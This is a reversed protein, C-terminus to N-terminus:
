PYLPSSPISLPSMLRPLDCLGSNEAGLLGVFIAAATLDASTGPNMRNCSDRLTVDLAAIEARGAATRVGGSALVATARRSVDRAADVGLKRAILTDPQHALLTLYTEVIADDWLLEDQRARVLTPVAIDFTTAFGTAYERAIADREAALTMVERLTATPEENVDQADVHGLGGPRACRIAAYVDCADAVTTGALVSAVSARFTDAVGGLAARALPVLLLIIGLNTNSPAWRATAETAELITSGVAREGARMMAPGIAAASALFHEYRADHFHRTPSVNGPKAASVELLCALQAATAVADPTLRV